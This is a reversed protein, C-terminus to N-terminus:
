SLHGVTGTSISRSAAGQGMDEDAPKPLQVLVLARPCSSPCTSLEAEELDKPLSSAKSVKASSPAQEDALLATDAEPRWECTPVTWVALVM